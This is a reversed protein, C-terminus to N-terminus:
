PESDQGASPILPLRVIAETGGARHRRFTLDGELIECIKRAFPVGLGSGGPKTTPGPALGGPVDAFPMGPGSDVIKIIADPARAELAVVIEAGRPSAEVANTLLGCLAQELLGRDAAVHLPTAPGRRQVAVAKRRIDHDLLRVAQDAVGDLAIPEIKPQLPNLFTLLQTVWSELRDVTGVIGDIAGRDEAAMDPTAMVQATARISALPNRINHAIIPVLAGLMAQKETQLQVQQSHKLEGTMQRFADQLTVFEAPGTAALRHDLKGAGYAEVAAVLDDLPAAVRHRLLYWSLVALVLGVLVPLLLAIASLMRVRESERNLDGLAANVVAETASFAREYELMDGKELQTEFVQLLDAASFNVHTQNMLSRARTRLNSYAERLAAVEQGVPGRDDHTALLDLKSEISRGFDEFENLADPDGVFVYDYLEKLQRYLDGRLGHVIQTLRSLAVTRDTAQQQLYILGGAAAASITILILFAASHLLLLRSLSPVPHSPVRRM